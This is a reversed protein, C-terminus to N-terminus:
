KLYKQPGNGNEKKGKKGIKKNGLNIGIRNKENQQM